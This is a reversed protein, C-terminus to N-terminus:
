KDISVVNYTLGFRLTFAEDLIIEEPVFGFTKYQLGLDFTLFRGVNTIKNLRYKILGSILGGTKSKATSFDLNEPQSWIDTTLNIWYNNGIPYDFIKASLGYFYKDRNQYFRNQILFKAKSNHTIWINNDIMDGFPTMTYGFGINGKLRDSIKFNRKGILQPNLLSVLSRYGVRKVFKIEESALDEYDTYRYFAMDPRHIHRIAGYVDHGVIDRKLEDSEEAFNPSLSKFTSGFYYSIISLKRIFYEVGVIRYDDEEFTLLRETALSIMYDSELGATHLRIYTPLNNDRLNQLESDRVGIVYAAGKSNFYPKSIAGIDNVTLISRHGEEHSLPITLLSTVGQILLSVKKNLNNDLQTAYLRYLSLFNQDFQRMTSLQAPKDLVIFPYSKTRLTDSQGLGVKQLGLALLTILIIRKTM